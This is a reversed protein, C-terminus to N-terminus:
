RRTATPAVQSSTRATDATCCCVTPRPASTLTVLHQESVALHRERVPLSLPCKLFRLILFRVLNAEQLAFVIWM